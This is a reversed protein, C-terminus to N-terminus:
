NTDMSISDFTYFDDFSQVFVKSPTDNIYDWVSWNEFNAINGSFSTIYMVEAPLIKKLVAIDLKHQPYFLSDDTKCEYYDFSSLTSVICIKTNFAFNYLHELTSTQLDACYNQLLDELYPIYVIDINLDSFKSKINETLDIINDINDDPMCDCFYLKKDDFWSLDGQRHNQGVAKLFNRVIVNSYPSIVLVRKGTNIAKFVFSNVMRTLPVNFEDSCFLKFMGKEFICLKDLANNGTKILNQNQEEEFLNLYDKIFDACPIIDPLNKSRSKDSDLKKIEFNNCDDIFKKAVEIIPENKTNGM